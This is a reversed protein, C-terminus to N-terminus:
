MKMGSTQTQLPSSKLRQSSFGEKEVIMKEWRNKDTQIIGVYEPHKIDYEIEKQRKWNEMDGKLTRFHQTDRLDLGVCVSENGVNLEVPKGDRVQKKQELGLQIDNVKEFDALRREIQLDKEKARLFSNTEPDFQIYTNNLLLIDGSRLRSLSNPDLRLDNIVNVNIPFGMLVDKGQSNIEMKLKMPMEVIVGNAMQKKVNILPTLEGSLLRDKVDDPLAKISDASMGIREFQKLPLTEVDMICKTLLISPYFDSIHNGFAFNYSM